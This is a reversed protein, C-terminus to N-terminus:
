KIHTSLSYGIMTFHSTFGMNSNGQRLGMYKSEDLDIDLDLDSFRIDDGEYLQNISFSSNSLNENNGSVPKTMEEEDDYDPGNFFDAPM